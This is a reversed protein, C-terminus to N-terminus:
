QRVSMLDDSDIGESSSWEALLNDMSPPFNSAVGLDRTYGAVWGVHMQGWLPALFDGPINYCLYYM